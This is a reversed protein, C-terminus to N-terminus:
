GWKRDREERGKGEGAERGDDKGRQDAENGLKNVSTSWERAEDNAERIREVTV